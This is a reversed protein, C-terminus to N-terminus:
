VAVGRTANYDVAMVWENAPLPLHCGEVRSTHLMPCRTADAPELLRLVCPTNVAFRELFNLRGEGSKM